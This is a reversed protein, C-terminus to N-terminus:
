IKTPPVFTDSIFAQSYLYHIFILILLLGFDRGGVVLSSKGVVVVQLMAGSLGLLLLTPGIDACLQFFYNVENNFLLCSFAIIMKGFQINYMLEFPGLHGAQHHPSNTHSLM